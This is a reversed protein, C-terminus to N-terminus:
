IGLRRRVADARTRSVRLTTGDALRLAWDGGATPEVAAVRDLNVIVSRHIRAFRRPDLRAELSAMGERILHVAGGAHVKEYPGDAEVYDVDDVPVLVIRDRKRVPIRDLRPAEGGAAPAGPERDRLLRLLDEGLRDVRALRLRELARDLAEFFREDTYPKLLYDVACLEFAHVAYRDYATVFVVPPMAEVGVAEVVEIGSLEPMQVDLFVLDPPDRRLARVAERGSGFTGTVEVGSRRALLDEIRQRAPPEDDVVVIRISEM